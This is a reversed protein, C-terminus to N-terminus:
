LFGPATLSILLLHGNGSTKIVKMQYDPGFAKELEPKADRELLVSVSGNLVLRSKLQEADGCFTIKTDFYFAPANPPLQYVILSRTPQIEGALEKVAPSKDIFLKGTFPVIALHILTIAVTLLFLGRLWKDEWNRRGWAAALMAMPVYCPMIYGVVKTKVIAYFGFVIALWILLFIIVHDKETKYLAALKRLSVIMILGLWIMWPTFFHELLYKIYFLPTGSHGEVASTSRKFLNYIFYYDSFDHGHHILQHIHWPLVIILGTVPLMWFLPKKLQKFDNQVAMSIFVVPLVILGNPGKSMIGLGMALGSLIFYYGNRRGLWYTILSLSVWFMLVGDLMGTRSIQLFHINGLFFLAAALAVWHDFWKKGAWYVVIVNIFGLIAVPLRTMLENIGFLKYGLAMNWIVLPPKEPWYTGNLYQSLYSHTELMEKAVSAYIAEDWDWLSGQGLKSFLMLGAVVVLLIFHFSKNQLLVNIRDTQM